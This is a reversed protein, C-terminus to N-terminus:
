KLVKTILGSADLKYILSSIFKEKAEDRRINWQKVNVPKPDSIMFEKLDSYSDSLVPLLDIDITVAQQRSIKAEVILRNFIFQYDEKLKMWDKGTIADPLKVINKPEKFIIVLKKM